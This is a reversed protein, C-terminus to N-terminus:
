RQHSTKFTSKITVESAQKTSKKKVQQRDQIVRRRCNFSRLTLGFELLLATHGNRKEAGPHFHADRFGLHKEVATGAGEKGLSFCTQM